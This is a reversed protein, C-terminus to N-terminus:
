PAVSSGSSRLIFSRSVEGNYTNTVLTLTDASINALPISAYTIMSYYEPVGGQDHYMKLHVHHKTTTTSDIVVGVSHQAKEDDASGTLLRLRMNLYRRNKGLWMSEAYIPDTKMGGKISDRPVLVGVWSFSISKAKDNGVKNFYLLARYTTDAKEIWSATVHPEMTLEDGQDTVVRTVYKDSGVYADVMEATMLSYEGEGKDYADTECSVLLPLAALLAYLAIKKM